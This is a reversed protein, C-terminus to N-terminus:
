LMRVEVKLIRTTTGPRIAFRNDIRLGVIWVIKKQMELVWVNSKQNQSLKQDIFFRSLKKKKQMGLPYFYDGQRWRRLLLPFQILDADLEALVQKGIIRYERGDAMSFHLLGSGFEIEKLGEEIIIFEQSKSELGSIVLWQRNKLLRHTPSLIFKGSDADLLKIIEITQGNSFGFERFIEYILSQLPQSKKLQLASILIEDGQKKLLKKKHLEVAQRFLIEIEGFRNINEALNGSASPFLDRIVPLLKHRLQNRTYNDSENSSDEVWELNQDVAFEKLEQRTAFLLPRVLHDQKPQIGHLGAIGTGKFFNILLTEINDDQHHATLIYDVAPNRDTTRTLSNDNKSKLFEWFWAYRLDRAAVQISCHNESAFQETQFSKTFVPVKYKRALSEVFLQDRESEEGRLKFNAHAIMFDYASLFCLETLVVSDLGGSVALLLKDHSHFLNKGEVFKRFRITLNNM